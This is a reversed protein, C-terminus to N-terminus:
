MGNGKQWQCGGQGRHNTGETELVYVRHGFNGVGFSAVWRVYRRATQRASPRSNQMLEFQARRSGRKRSNWQPYYCQNNRCSVGAAAQVALRLLIASHHFRCFGFCHLKLGAAERRERSFQSLRGTSLKPCHWPHTPRCSM